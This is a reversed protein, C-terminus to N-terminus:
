APRRKQLSMAENTCAEVCRGCGTCKAQDIQAIEGITIAGTPCADECLGCATCKESDVSAVLASAVGASGGQEVESIRANIARLQDAAAEAQARLMDVEQAGGPQPTPGQPAGPMVGAMGAGTGMGRGMGRGGGM